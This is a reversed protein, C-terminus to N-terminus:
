KCRRNCQMHRSLSPIDRSESKLMCYAKTYDSFESLVMPKAGDEEKSKLEDVLKLSIRQHVDEIFGFCAEFKFRVFTNM